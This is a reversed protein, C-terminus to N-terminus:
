KDTSPKVKVMYACPWLYKLTLLRRTLVFYISDVLFRRKKVVCFQAFDWEDKM